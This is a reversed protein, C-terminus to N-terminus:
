AIEQINIYKVRTNPNLSRAMSILYPLNEYVINHYPDSTNCIEDIWHYGVREDTTTRIPLTCDTFIVFCDILDGRTTQLKAFLTWVNQSYHEANVGTEEIFERCMAEYGTEGNEVKGGVGCLKDKLYTPRNKQILVVSNNREHIAFGAVYHM